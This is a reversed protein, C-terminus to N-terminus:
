AEALLTTDFMSRTAQIGISRLYGINAAIAEESMAFLGGPSEMLPQNARNTFIENALDRGTGKFWSDKFRQPYRAPDRFNETWGRRSARLWRVLLPRHSALFDQTVVVTDNFLTIGQDYLLFWNAKKGSLGITYPVDTVFDLTADIEGKILPTPDFQYPVVRVARKDIKHLKLLAQFTAMNVPPVAITKGELEAPTRIPRESLSVVGLPNKQFQAGIIRFPAGHSAIAKITTDPATLALPAKGGLLASEPILDPGGPLISLDIGEAGFYGLDHGVFYGLFEADYVWAAQMALPQGAARSSLPGLLSALGLAAARLHFRRRQPHGPADGRRPGPPLAARPDM